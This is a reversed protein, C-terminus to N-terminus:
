SSVEPLRLKQILEKKIHQPSYSEIAALSNASILTWLNEDHYLRLIEAAFDETTNAILVNYGHTLNMGEAGIDTTIVPLSYELSQGIKGKM